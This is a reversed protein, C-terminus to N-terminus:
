MKSTTSGDGLIAMSNEFEQHTGQSAKPSLLLKIHERKVTGVILVALIILTLITSIVIYGYGVEQVEATMTEPRRSMQLLALDKKIMVDSLCDKTTQEYKRKCDAETKEWGLLGYMTLMKSACEVDDAIDDDLLDSCKVNCSGGSSDKGCWWDTGIEYIGVYTSYKDQATHLSNGICLHMYVKDLSVNHRNLLELAFECQEFRKLSALDFCLMILLLALKISKM